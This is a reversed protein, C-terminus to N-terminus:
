SIAFKKVKTHITKYDIRLLRAAKAKNGASYELASVIIERELAESRKQVIAKLSQEEWPMKQILSNTRRNFSSDQHIELHKDTVLDDALLVARRIISRFQRVNGPWPYALLTRLASESFGKVSKHLALNTIDLFRKALYPIDKKRERLPPVRITFENLRYFLDERFAGSEVITTLDQNCAVLLRIDVDLPKTSGLRCIKKEQLTRLIKGQSSLPLNSIEDMLLTGGNAAELKGIKRSFAGTFAGKEHGFLESEMLGEPIAGCDIAVWPGGARLSNQHIAQAVLEKGSGTEGQIVVTFDTKAVRKEQAILSGIVKSPGMMKRLCLPGELQDPLRKLKQKLNRVALTRNVTEIIDLHQFPKALYNDAGAQIAEVAGQINAHGTIIVVPLDPDLEKAYKMVEMGNIGPMMLDLLLVDPIESRIMKLATEGEYATLADFGQKEMLRSLIKCIHQEDDVILIRARNKKM